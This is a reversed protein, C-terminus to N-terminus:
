KGPPPNRSLMEALALGLTALWVLWKTVKGLKGVNLAM